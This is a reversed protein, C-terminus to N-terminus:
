NLMRLPPVGCFSLLNLYMLVDVYKIFLISLSKGILFFRIWSLFCNLLLQTMSTSKIDKLFVISWYFSWTDGSNLTFTFLPLQRRTQEWKITQQIFTYLSKIIGKYYVIHYGLHTKVHLINWMRYETISHLVFHWSYQVYLM